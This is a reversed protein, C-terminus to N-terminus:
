LLMVILDNISWMQSYLTHSLQTAIAYFLTPLYNYKSIIKIQFTISKGVHEEM